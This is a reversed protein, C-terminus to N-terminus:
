AVCAQKQKELLGALAKGAKDRIAESEDTQLLELAPIARVDMLFAFGWIAAARFAESSHESLKVLRAMANEEEQYYLGIIANVVVRHAKDLLANRFVETRDPDQSFWLAEIANARVRSDESKLQREVVSRSPSVKCMLKVAKSRVNESEHNNLNRLWSFLVSYDGAAELLDLARLLRATNRIKVRDAYSTFKAFFRPDNERLVLAARKAQDFSLFDPDLLLDFYKEFNSWVLIHQAPPTTENLGMISACARTAESPFRNRLLKFFFMFKQPDSNVLNMLLPEISEQPAPEESIM